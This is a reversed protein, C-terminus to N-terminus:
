QDHRYRRTGLSRGTSKWPRTDGLGVSWSPMGRKMGNWCPVQDWVSDGACRPRYRCRVRLRSGHDHSQCLHLMVVTIGNNVLQGATQRGLTSADAARAGWRRPLLDSQASDAAHRTPGLSRGPTGSHSGSRHGNRPSISSGVGTRARDEGSPQSSGRSITATSQLSRLESQASKM